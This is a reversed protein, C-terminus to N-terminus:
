PTLEFVTGASAQNGGGFTSGYFKGNLPLLKGPFIGDSHGQFRYVITEIWATGDLSPPSLTFIFGCGHIGGMTLCSPDGGGDASVYLKGDDGFSLDTPSSGDRGGTFTHLLSYTWSSEGQLPPTLKFITGCDCGPDGGHKTYGYLAGDPGFIVDLPFGGDPGGSFAHLTSLTWDGVGVPPTLKFVSGRFAPGGNELTGYIAGDSGAVVNNPCCGQLDDEGDFAFIVDEKWNGDPTAPPKLTFVTGSLNAGLTFTSGLLTGKYFSLRSNPHQGDHGTFSHIVTEVYPNGPTLEFIAGKNNAGGLAATGYMKGTTPIMLLGTPIAGENGGAFTHLITETWRGGATTPPTLRFVVGCGDFGGESCFSVGGAGTSGYLVGRSDAVLRQSGEKGDGPSGFRHIVTETQAAGVTGALVTLAAGAFAILFIRKGPSFIRRM